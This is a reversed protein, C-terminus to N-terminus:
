KKVYLYLEKYRRNTQDSLVVYSSVLTLAEYEFRAIKYDAYTRKFTDGRLKVGEAVFM